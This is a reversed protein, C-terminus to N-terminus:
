GDHNLFCPRRVIHADSEHIELAQVLDQNFQSLTNTVARATAERRAQEIRWLELTVPGAQTRLM